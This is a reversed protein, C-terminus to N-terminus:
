LGLYKKQVDKAERLDDPGGQFAIAGKNMVFVHDALELALSLNQEVLLITMDGRAKLDRM